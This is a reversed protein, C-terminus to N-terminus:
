RGRPGPGGRNEPKVVLRTAGHGKLHEIMAPVTDTTFGCVCRVTQVDPGGAFDLGVEPRDIQELAKPGTSLTITLGNGEIAGLQELLGALVQSLSRGAQVDVLPITVWSTKM